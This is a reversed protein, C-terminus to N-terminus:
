AMRHLGDADATGLARHVGSWAANPARDRRDRVSSAADNVPNDLPGLM